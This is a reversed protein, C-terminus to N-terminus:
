AIKGKLFSFLFLCTGFKKHTGPKVNGKVVFMKPRGPLFTDSVPGSAFITFANISYM